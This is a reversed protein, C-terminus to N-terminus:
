DASEKQEMRSIVKQLEANVQSLASLLYPRADQLAEEGAARASQAAKEMEGRVKQAEPLASTERIAQSVDNVMSELGAKMSEMHRRNEESEWATRFAKALGEGLSQFQQGVKRWSEETAHENTM